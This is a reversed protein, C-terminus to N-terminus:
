TQVAAPAILVGTMKRNGIQVPIDEIDTVVWGIKSAIEGGNEPVNFYLLQIINRPESNTSRHGNDIGLIYYCGDPDRITVARGDVGTSELFNQIPAHRFGLRQLQEEARQMTMM